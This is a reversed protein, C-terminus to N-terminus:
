KHEEKPLLSKIHENFAPMTELTDMKLNYRHILHLALQEDSTLEGYKEKFMKSIVEEFDEQEEGMNGSSIGSVNNLLKEIFYSVNKM